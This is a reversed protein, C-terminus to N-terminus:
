MRECRVGFEYLRVKKFEFTIINCNNNGKCYCDGNNNNNNNNIYASDDYRYQILEFRFENLNFQFTNELKSSNLHFNEFLHISFRDRFITIKAAKENM